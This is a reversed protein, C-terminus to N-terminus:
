IRWSFATFARQSSLIGFVKIHFRQWLTQWAAWPSTKPLMWGLRASKRATRSFIGFEEASGRIFSNYSAHFASGAGGHGRHVEQPFFIGLKNDIQEEVLKYFDALISFSGIQLQFRFRFGKKGGSFRITNKLLVARGTMTYIAVALSGLIQLKKGVRPILWCERNETRASSRIALAIKKTNRSRSHARKSFSKRGLSIQRKDTMHPYKRCATSIIFSCISRLSKKRRLKRQPPM